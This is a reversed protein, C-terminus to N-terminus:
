RLRHNRGPCRRAGTRLVLGPAGIQRLRVPGAEVPGAQITMSQRAPSRGNRRLSSGAAGSFTHVSRIRRIARHRARCRGSAGNLLRHSLLFVARSPHRGMSTIGDALDLHSFSRASPGIRQGCVVSTSHCSRALLPASRRAAVRPIPEVLSQCRNESRNGEGDAESGSLLIYLRSKSVDFRNSRRMHASSGEPGDRFRGGIIVHQFRGSCRWLPPARGSVEGRAVGVPRLSKRDPIKGTQPRAPPREREGTAVAVGGAPLDKGEPRECSIM